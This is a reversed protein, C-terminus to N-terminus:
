KCTVGACLQGVCVWCWQKNEPCSALLLKTQIWESQDFAMDGAKASCEASNLCYILCLFPNCLSPLSSSVSSSDSWTQWKIHGSPVKHRFNLATFTHVRPTIYRHTLWVKLTYTFINTTNEIATQIWIWM